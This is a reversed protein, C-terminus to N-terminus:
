KKFLAKLANIFKLRQANWAPFLFPRAAKKYTGFEIFPVYEVNSGVEGRNPQIESVISARARGTDVPINRKAESEIALTSKAIEKAVNNQLERPYKDINNLARRFKAEDLKLTIM